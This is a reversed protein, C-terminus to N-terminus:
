ESWAIQEFLGVLKRGRQPNVHAVWAIRGELHARFNAIRDRNQSAAGHRTCNTLIAKLTDYSERPTNVHDNVVIGTVRQATARTMVQTKAANIAFGEDAVVEAARDLFRAIRQAFAAGGSVALDDAYRTYNAGFRRALGTLRVDLSFACLNALAPSTPAGQPLHPDAFTLRTERDHRRPGPATTFVSAPTRTTALGTLTRSVGDPYGLSHFLAHVRSVRTTLFFDRIDLTAVIAEAAHISAGTVASRGSVFGHAAAHVPVKDLIDSLIRRQLAKLRPKPAEILRPPGIRKERFSYVYHQLLPNDTRGQLHRTDALWDLDNLSVDLWDALAGVTALKPIDLDRFRGAPAFRPPALVVPTRVGPKALPALAKRFSPEDILFRILDESDPPVPGPAYTILRAIFERQAPKTRLDAFGALSQSLARKTWRRALLAAAVQNAIRTWVVRQRYKLM